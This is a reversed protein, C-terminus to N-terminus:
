SDGLKATLEKVQRELRRIARQAASLDRKLAQPTLSAKQERQAEQEELFAKRENIASDGLRKGFEPSLNNILGDNPTNGNLNPRIDKGHGSIKVSNRPTVVSPDEIGGSLTGSIPVGAKMAEIQAPSFEVGGVNTNTSM